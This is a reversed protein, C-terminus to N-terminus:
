GVEGVAWTRILHYAIAIRGPVKLVESREEIALLTEERSFWRVDSMEEPDMAITTTAAHAHCGIMLSNPFPWPQSSHYRVNKVEIGAEERIERAVAEEISEGQDMFGALASYMNSRSLRGRSQGLLCRDGDSVLTIVVPDTRPFHEAGCSPCRRVQGGRRIESPQGCRSCYAHSKHWNMQCRAQATIGADSMSLFETASRPDEFRRGDGQSLAEVTSEDKTVDVAFHAVGDMLGLFIPEVSGALRDIEERSAWALGPGADEAVLVGQDTVPLFRSSADVTRAAIWSEDRREREARDLTNGAYVHTIRPRDATM